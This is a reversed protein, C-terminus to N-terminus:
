LRTIPCETFICTLCCTDWCPIAMAMAAKEGPTLSPDDVSLDAYGQERLFDGIAEQSVGVGQLAAVPDNKIEQKFKSEKKAREVIRELKRKEERMEPRASM